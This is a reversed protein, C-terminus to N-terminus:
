FIQIIIIQSPPLHSPIIDVPCQEGMAVHGVEGGENTGDEYLFFTYFRKINNNFNFIKNKSEDLPEPLFSISVTTHM